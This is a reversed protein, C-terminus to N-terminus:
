KANWPCRTLVLAMGCTNTFGSFVLGSGVFLPILLLSPAFFFGALTVIAVLAGAAIRVQRELSISSAGRVVPLGDKEWAATGGEVNSVDKFGNKMFIDAAQKGRAGSQCICIIKKGSVRAMETETLGNLPLLIAPLAHMSDFESRMRVDVLAYEGTDGQLRAHAEQPSVSTTSGTTM